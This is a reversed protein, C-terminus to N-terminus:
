PQGDITILLAPKSSFLIRPPDNKVTVGEFKPEAAQVAAELRDLSVTKTSGPLKLKLLALVADDKEAAVPCHVKTIQLDDFTVLRNIKDVETRADFWVVGYKSPATTGSKMEVASYVYIRNGDWRDVQPPYIVYEQTGDKIVRPWGTDTSAPK